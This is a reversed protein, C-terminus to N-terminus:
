LQFQRYKANLAYLNYAQLEFVLTIENTSNSNKPTHSYM